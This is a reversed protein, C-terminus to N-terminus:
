LEEDIIEQALEICENCIYVGPGAILKKVLRQSKGCFSCLLQEVQPGPAEEDLTPDEASAEQASRKIAYVESAELGTAAAIEVLTPERGLDALLEREARGIRNLTEVAHGPIRQPADPPPTPDASPRARSGPQQQEAPVPLMRLVKDRVTDPGAGFDRLIRAAVDDHDGVLASPVPSILGLLMHETGIYQHGLDLAERLSLEIARKARPTFPMQDAPDEEGEGVIKAVQARVGEVTMGHSGLVRAAVGERESLLGLLLHESDIYSHKLALAEERALVVVQRARETFREFM